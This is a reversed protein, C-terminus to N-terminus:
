DWDDFDWSDWSEAGGMGELLAIIKPHGGWIIFILSVGGVISFPIYPIDTSGTKWGEICSWVLTSFFALVGLRGLFLLKSPRLLTLGMSLFAAGTGLALLNCHDQKWVAGGEKWLMICGSVTFFIQMTSWHLKKSDNQKKM